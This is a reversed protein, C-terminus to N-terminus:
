HNNQGLSVKPTKLQAASEKSEALGQKTMWAEIKEEARSLDRGLYVSKNKGAFRKIGYWLGRDDHFLSFGMINKSAPKETAPKNEIREVPATNSV